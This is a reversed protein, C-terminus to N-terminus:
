AVGLLMLQPRFSVSAAGPEQVELSVMNMSTASARSWGGAYTTATTTTQTSIDNSYGGATIVGTRYTQNTGTTSAALNFDNQCFSVIFSNAQTTIVNASVSTTAAAASGTAGFPSAACGSLSVNCNGNRVVMAAYTWTVNNAGTSPSALGYEFVTYAGTTSDQVVKNAGYSVSNYTMSNPTQRVGASTPQNWIGSVLALNSGTCTHSTSTPTATNVGGDAASSADFAIALCYPSGFFSGAGPYALVPAPVFEIRPINRKFFERVYTEVLALHAEFSHAVQRSVIGDNWSTVEVRIGFRRGFILELFRSINHTWSRDSWEFDKGHQPRYRARRTITALIRIFM